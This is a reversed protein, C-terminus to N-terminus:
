KINYELTNSIPIYYGDVFATLTVEYRGPYGIIDIEQWNLVTENEANRDLVQEGGRKINWGLNDYKKELGADRNPFGDKDLWIKEKPENQQAVKAAEHATGSLDGGLSEGNAIVDATCEIMDSSQDISCIGGAEKGDTIGQVHCNIVQCNRAYGILVAPNMGSVKANEFNVDRVTCFLGCGIFAVHYGDEITMNKITHGNGNFDGHFDYDLGAGTWGMPAWKYGALDIDNELEIQINTYNGSDDAGKCNALYVASALQEVTSVKFIYSGTGEQRCSSIYEADALQLIDGVDENKAWVTDDLPQASPDYDEEYGDDKLDAGWCNLWKYKNVLLYVGQEKINISVSCNDTNLEGDELEVYNNNEEDYWLFMLADPRVGQLEDPDYVFVLKGGKVNDSKFAVDVPAGVLGVVGTHLVHRGYEDTFRVDRSIDEDNDPILLVDTVAKAGNDGIQAHAPKKNGRPKQTTDTDGKEADEGDTATVSASTGKSEDDISKRPKSEFVSGCGVTLVATLAIVAACLKKRTM